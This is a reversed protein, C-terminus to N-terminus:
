WVDSGVRAGFDVLEPKEAPDLTACLAEIDIERPLIQAPEIIVRGHEQRVELPQDLRLHAAKM